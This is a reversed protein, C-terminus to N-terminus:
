RSALRTVSYPPLSVSEQVTQTDTVVHDGQVWGPQAAPEAHVSTLTMKQNLEKPLRVGVRGGTLNVLLAGPHRGLLAVGVVGPRGAVTPVDRLVLRSVKAGPTASSWLLPVTYGLATRDLVRSGQSGDTFLPFTVATSIDQPNDAGGVIDHLLSFGVRPDALQDLAVQSAALAQAWIQTGGKVFIGMQNWETLWVALGKPLHDLTTRSFAEWHDEGATLTAAADSGPPKRGPLAWYPHVAIADEGRVTSLLSANWGSYRPGFARFEINAEDAGSVAIKAHPFARHLALIWPNMTTGYAAGTPFRSTYPSTPNWIENGLEIYDVSLGLRQAEYLMALQDDLNSTIVNLDWLPTAHTARIISAWKELTIAPRGPDVTNFPSGPAGIFRGTRWDLWQATTGGQVRLVGLPLKALDEHLQASNAFLDDDLPLVISEANFGFFHAPVTRGPGM